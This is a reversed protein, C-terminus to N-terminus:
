LYVRAEGLRRYTIYQIVPRCSWAATVKISEGGHSDWTENHGVNLKPCCKALELDGGRPKSIDAVYSSTNRVSRCEHETAMLNPGSSVPHLGESLILADPADTQGSWWTGFISILKM